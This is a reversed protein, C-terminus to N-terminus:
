AFTISLPSTIGDVWEGDFVITGSGFQRHAGGWDPFSSVANTLTFTMNGGAAGRADKHTAVLTGRAGAGIGSMWAMDASTVTLGPDNYDNVVTSPGRDGDGSFKALNGGGRLQVNTVGTATIITGGQPTFSVPTWNMQRKSAAM